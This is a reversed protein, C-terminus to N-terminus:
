YFLDLIYNIELGLRHMLIETVADREDPCDEIEKETKDILKWIEDETHENRRSLLEKIKEKAALTM